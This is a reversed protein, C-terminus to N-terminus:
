ADGSESTGHPADRYREGATCAAILVQQSERDFQHLYAYFRGWRVTFFGDRASAWWGGYINALTLNGVFRQPPQDVEHRSPAFRRPRITKPTPM